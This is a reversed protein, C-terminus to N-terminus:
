QNQLSDFVPLAEASGTNKQARGATPAAPRAGGRGCSGLCMPTASSPAAPTSATSIARRATMRTHREGVEAM